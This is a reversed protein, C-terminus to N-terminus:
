VDNIAGGHTCPFIIASVNDSNNVATLDAPLTAVAGSLGWLATSRLSDSTNAVARDVLLLCVVDKFGSIAASHLPTRGFQLRCPYPLPCSDAFLRLECRCASTSTSHCM